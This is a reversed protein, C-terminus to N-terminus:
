EIIEGNISNLFCSYKAGTLVHQEQFREMQYFFGKSEGSIRSHLHGDPRQYSHFRRQITIHSFEEASAARFTFDSGLDGFDELITICLTGM